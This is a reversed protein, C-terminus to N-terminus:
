QNIRPRFASCMKIIFDKSMAMWEEVMAAKLADVSMHPTCYARKEMACLMGYDLPPLGILKTAMNMGAIIFSFEGGQIKKNSNPRPAFRIDKAKQGGHRLSSILAIQIKLM